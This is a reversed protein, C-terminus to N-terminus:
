KIIGEPILNRKAFRFDPRYNSTLEYINNCAYPTTNLGKFLSDGAEDIGDGFLM